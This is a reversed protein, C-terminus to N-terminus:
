AFDGDDKLIECHITNARPTIFGWLVFSFCGLGNGGLFVGSIYIMFLSIFFSSIKLHM